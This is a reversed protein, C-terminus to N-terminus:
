PEEDEQVRAAGAASIAEANKAGELEAVLDFPNGWAKLLAGILDFPQALKLLRPGTCYAELQAVVAGKDFGKQRILTIKYGRLSVKQERLLRNTSIANPTLEIFCPKNGKDTLGALYYFPRKAFRRVCLPCDRKRTCPYSKGHIFHKIAEVIKESTILARGPDGVKARVFPYLPETPPPSISTSFAGRLAAVQEAHNM